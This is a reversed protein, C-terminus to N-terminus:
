FIRGGALERGLSRKTRKRATREDGEDSSESDYIVRRRNGRPLTPSPEVSSVDEDPTVVDVVDPDETNLEQFEEEDSFAVEEDESAYGDCAAEDEFLSSVNTTHRSVRPVQVPSPTEYMVSRTVLGTARASAASSESVAAFRPRRPTRVAAPPPQFSPVRVQNGVLLQNGMDLARGQQERYVLEVEANRMLRPQQDRETLEYVQWRDASMYSLPPVENSFCFVHPPEMMLCAGEGYMAGQVLGNKIEEITSFLDKFSEQKGSTRPIDIFYARRAGIKSIFQKLQTATGYPVKMGLKKFMCYKVLKSKGCNGDKNYIWTITRDDPLTPIKDLMWQQWPLPTSMCDLDKGMYIPRKGWPGAQRTDEKMAYDRLAARGATSSPRIDIHCDHTKEPAWGLERLAKAVTAPRVKRAFRVYGQFHFLRQGNEGRELQFVYDQVTQTVCADLDTKFQDAKAEADEKSTGDTFTITM